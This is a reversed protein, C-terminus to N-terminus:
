SEFEKLTFRAYPFRKRLWIVEKEVSGECDVINVCRRQYTETAADIAEVVIGGHTKAIANLVSSLQEASDKPSGEVFSAIVALSYRKQTM